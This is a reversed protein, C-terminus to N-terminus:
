PCVGFEIADSLSTTQNSTNMPDRYWLQAQVIAGAGPNKTPAAQWMANLDQTFLGDCNGSTGFSSLLGGRKVPPVVCQLSTGNGWANAQRGNTGFFFLGDKNGEVDIAILNFGPGGSASALGGVFLRAQCGSTSTGATCYNLGVTVMSGLVPSTAGSLGTGLVGDWGNPGQDAVTTAGAAEEFHYLLLTSADAAPQSAPPTVSAGSYRAVDSVRVWDISGRMSGNLPEFRPKFAGVAMGSVANQISGSVTRSAVLTGDVYLREQDGEVVFAVHTWECLKWAVNAAFSVYGPGRWAGGSIASSSLWLVKAELGFMQEYFVMGGLPSQVAIRAEITIESGITTNGPVDITDTLSTFTAQQGLAPAPVLAAILFSAALPLNRQYM